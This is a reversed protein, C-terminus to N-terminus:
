KRKTKALMLRKEQEEIHLTRKQEYEASKTELYDAVAQSDRFSAYESRGLLINHSTVRWCLKSTRVVIFMDTCRLKKFSFGGYNRLFLYSHKSYDYSIYYKRKFDGSLRYILWHVRGGKPAGKLNM